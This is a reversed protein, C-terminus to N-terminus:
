KINFKELKATEENINVRLLYQGTPLGNCDFTLSVESEHVNRRKFIRGQSDSLVITMEVDHLCEYSLKAQRTSVDYYFAYQKFNDNEKKDLDLKQLSKLDGDLDLLEKRIAMNKEDLPLNVQEEMPFYFLRRVILSDDSCRRKSYAEVVPYRYGRVYLRQVTEKEVDKGSTFHAMISDKYFYDGRLFSQIAPYTKTLLVRETQVLGVGSVETGDPLCLTGVKMFKTHYTGYTAVALRYCYLGKGFFTGQLSDNLVFPYRLLCEPQLYFMLLQNNVHGIQYLSDNESHYCFRNSCRLRTVSEGFDSIKEPISDDLVDAGKLNWIDDCWVLEKGLMEDGVRLSNHSQDVSLLNINKLVNSQAMLVFLNFLVFVIVLLLRKTYVTIEIIRKVHTMYFNNDLGFCKKKYNPQLNVFYISVLSQNINGFGQKM